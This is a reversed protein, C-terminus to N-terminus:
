GAIGGRKGAIGGIGALGGHGAISGMIRGGAVAILQESVVTGFPSMYTRNAKFHVVTGTLPCMYTRQTAM